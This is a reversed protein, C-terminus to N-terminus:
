RDSRPSPALQPPHADVAGRQHQGSWFFALSRKVREGRLIGLVDLVPRWALDDGDRDGRPSGPRLRNRKTFACGPLFSPRACGDVSPTVRARCSRPPRSCGNSTAWAVPNQPCVYTREGGGQSRREVYPREVEPTMAVGGCGVVAVERPDAHSTVRQRRDVGDLVLPHLPPRRRVASPPAREEEGLACSRARQAARIQVLRDDIGAVQPDGTVVVRHSDGSSPAAPGERGFPSRQKAVGTARREPHQSGVARPM